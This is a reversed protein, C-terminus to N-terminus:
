YSTQSPGKGEDPLHEQYQGRKKEKKRIHCGMPEPTVGHGPELEKGSGGGGGGGRGVVGGVGGGGCVPKYALPRHTEGGIFEEKEGGKQPTDKGQVGRQIKSRLGRRIAWIERLQVQGAKSSNAIINEKETQAEM